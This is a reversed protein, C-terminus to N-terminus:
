GVIGKLTIIIYLSFLLIVVSSKGFVATFPVQLHSVLDVPFAESFHKSSMRQIEVFRGLVSILHFPFDYPSLLKECFLLLM